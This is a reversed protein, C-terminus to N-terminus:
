WLSRSSSKLSLSFDQCGVQLPRSEVSKPAVERRRNGGDTKSTVNEVSTLTYYLPRVIGGCGTLHYESMPTKLSECLHLVIAALRKRLSQAM